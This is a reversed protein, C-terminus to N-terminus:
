NFWNFSWKLHSHRGQRSPIVAKAPAAGHLRRYDPIRWEPRAAPLYGLTNNQIKQAYTDNYNINHLWAAAFVETQLNARRAVHLHLHVTM